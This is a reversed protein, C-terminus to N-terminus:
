RVELIESCDPGSLSLLLGESLVPKIVDGELIVDQTRSGDLAVWASEDDIQDTVVGRAIVRESRWAEGSPRAAHQERLIEVAEGFELGQRRGLSIQYLDQDSEPSNRHAVVHGRPALLRDIPSRLCGLSELM